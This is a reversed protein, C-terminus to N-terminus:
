ADTKRGHKNFIINLGKLLLKKDIIIENRCFPIIKGANGGTAIIKPRYGLEESLRECVGDICSATGYIIGSEISESTNKGIISEPPSGLKIQPLLATNKILSNLATTVGPLIMGGIFEKNKNVISITTATGMDIIIIPAGYEYVAGVADAIRDSGVREPKDTKIVIGSATINSVILPEIGFESIIINKILGTLLPVVSSIVAGEIKSVEWAKIIRTIRELYDVEIESIDTMIKEHTFIQGSNILGVAVTTNGIDVALIM